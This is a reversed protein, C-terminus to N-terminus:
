SLIIYYFINESTKENHLLMCSKLLEKHTCFEWDRCFQTELLYQKQHTQFLNKVDYKSCYIVASLFLQMM